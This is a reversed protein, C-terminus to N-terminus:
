GPSISTDEGPFCIPCAAQLELSPLGAQPQKWSDDRESNALDLLESQVHDLLPSGAASLSGWTHLKKMGYTKVREKVVEFRQLANM